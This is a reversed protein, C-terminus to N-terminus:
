FTTKAAQNCEFVEGTESTVFVYESSNNFLANLTMMVDSLDERIQTLESELDESLLEFRNKRQQLYEVNKIRQLTEIINFPKEIYDQAGLSLAEIRMHENHSATLM